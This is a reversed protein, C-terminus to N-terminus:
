EVEGLLDGAVETRLKGEHTICCSDVIDDDFDIRLTGPNERDSMLNLLNVINQAYLRSAPEPLQSPVNRGGWILVENEVVEDGPRSGQVNGGSDAALDVVVSGSKMQQVMETTVLMPAAKGPVAATTILADAKAVYPTLLERQRRARDDGMERAYGGQGELAPLDLQIFEAGMSRVEEAAAERVDYAEVVAGLRHATAIAQLGAVGAGLVVVTAPRVTGAATMLLPFFRELREAAVMVARYGSVMAQSSLADMPQARSTRPVLDLSFTTIGKAQLTRVLPLQQNATALMSVTIAGPKLEAAIFPGPPQVSLVIDAGVHASASIQAGNVRYDGDSAFAHVGANPQM